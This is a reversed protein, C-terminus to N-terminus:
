YYDMLREGVLARWVYVTGAFLMKLKMLEM